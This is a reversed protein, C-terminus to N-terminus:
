IKSSRFYLIFSHMKHCSDCFGVKNALVQLKRKLLKKPPLMLDTKKKFKFLSKSLIQGKNRLYICFDIYFSSSALCLFIRCLSATRVCGKAETGVGVNNVGRLRVKRRRGVGLLSRCLCFCMTMHGVRLTPAPDSLGAAPQTHVM